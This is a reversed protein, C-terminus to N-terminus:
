APEGIRAALEAANVQLDRPRARWCAPSFAFRMRLPAFPDGDQTTTELLAAGVGVLHQALRGDRLAAAFAGRDLGVVALGAGTMAAQYGEEGLEKRLAAVALADVTTRIFEHLADLGLRRALALQQSSESLLWRQHPALTARSPVAIRYREHARRTLLRRALPSRLVQAFLHDDGGVLHRLWGPHTTSADPLLYSALRRANM